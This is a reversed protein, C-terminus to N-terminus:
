LNIYFISIAILFQGGAYLIPGFDFNLNKWYTSIAFEIDGLYLSTMGFCLLLSSILSITSSFLMNIGIASMMTITFGYIGMAIMEVKSSMGKRVNLFIIIFIIIMIISILLTYLNIQSIVFVSITYLLYAILFISLGRIVVNMDTMDINLFDAILSLSMGIVILTTLLFNSFQSMYSLLVCVLSFLTTLPQYIKVLKLDNRKRALYYKYIGFASFPLIFIWLINEFSM